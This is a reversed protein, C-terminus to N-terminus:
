AEYAEGLVERAVWIAEELHISPVGEVGIAFLALRQTRPGPRHDPAVDAFLLAHIRRADAVVLRGAPLEAAPAGAALSEGETTTRIGLGGTDLLAADLAWVPVGTELLALLLADHLVGRSAFGGHLLRSVAAQESPVRNVDPDLGIQRYFVRYAHPIPQTRMAVVSAGRYRNSLEQLRRALERPSPGLRAPVTVWVLRLGPFEVRVGAEVFGAAARLESESSM